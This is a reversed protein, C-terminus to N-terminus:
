TYSHKTVTSTFTCMQSLMALRNYLMYTNHLIRKLAEIKRFYKNQANCTKHNYIKCKYIQNM